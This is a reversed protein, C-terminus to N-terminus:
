GQTRSKLESHMGGVMLESLPLSYRLMARAGAHPRAAAGEVGEGGDGGAGGKRDEIAEDSGWSSGSSGHSSGGDVTESGDSSGNEHGGSSGGGGGAGLMTHDLLTGRRESCLTMVRGVYEAPTIITATVTPELISVVQRACSTAETGNTNNYTADYPAM